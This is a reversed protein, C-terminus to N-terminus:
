LRLVQKSVAKLSVAAKQLADADHAASVALRISPALKGRCRDLVSLRHVTALVGHAKLALDVIEQPDSCGMDAALVCAM